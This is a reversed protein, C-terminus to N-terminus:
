AKFAKCLVADADERRLAIVAGRIRYAAPDGLPSRGVCEIVTGEMVGIDRLRGAINRDSDSFGCVVAREGINFAGLRGDASEIPNGKSSIDRAKRKCASPPCIISVGRLKNTGYTMITDGASYFIM